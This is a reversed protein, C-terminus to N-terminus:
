YEVARFDGDLEKLGLKDFFHPCFESTLFSSVSQYDFEQRDNYGIDGLTQKRAIPDATFFSSFGRTM